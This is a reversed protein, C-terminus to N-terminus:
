ITRAVKKKGSNPPLYVKIELWKFDDAQMSMKELYKKREKVEKREKGKERQRERDTQRERERETERDRERERELNLVVGSLILSVM